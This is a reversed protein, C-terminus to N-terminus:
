TKVPKMFVPSVSQLIASLMALRTVRLVWNYTLELVTNSAEDGYGLFALPFKGDPYENRRLETM